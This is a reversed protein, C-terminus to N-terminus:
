LMFYIYSFKKITLIWLSVYRESWIIINVLLSFDLLFISSNTSNKKEYELLKKYENM